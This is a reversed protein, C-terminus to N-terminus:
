LVAVIEAGETIIVPHLKGYWGCGCGCDALIVTRKIGGHTYDVFRPFNVKETLRHFHGHVSM